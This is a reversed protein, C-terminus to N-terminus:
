SEEEATSSDSHNKTKLAEQQIYHGLKKKLRQLHIFNIFTIVILFFIGIVTFLDFLRAVQFIPQFQNFIAPFLSAITIAVFAITWITFSTAGFYKKKYCYYTFFVMSLSFVISAIQLGNIEM